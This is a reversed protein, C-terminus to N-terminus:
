MTRADVSIQTSTVCRHGQMYAPGYISSGTIEGCLETVFGTDNSTLSNGLLAIVQLPEPRGTSSSVLPFPANAIFATAANVLGVPKYVGGAQGEPVQGPIPATSTGLGGNAPQIVGGV